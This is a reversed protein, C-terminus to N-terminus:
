SGFFNRGSFFPVTMQGAINKLGGSIIVVPFILYCGDLALPGGMKSNKNNILIGDWVVPLQGGWVNRSLRAEEGVCGRINVSDEMQNNNRNIFRCGGIAM